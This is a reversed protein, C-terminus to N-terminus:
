DRSLPNEPKKTLKLEARYPGLSARLALIIPDPKAGIARMVDESPDLSIIAGRCDIKLKNEM